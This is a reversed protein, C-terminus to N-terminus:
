QLSGPWHPVTLGVLADLTGCHSRRGILATVIGKMVPISAKQLVPVGWGESM